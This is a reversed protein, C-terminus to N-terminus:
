EDFSEWAHNVVMWDDLCDDFCFRRAVEEVGYRKEMLRTWHPYYDKRIEEESTVVVQNGLIKPRGPEDLDYGDGWIPENYCFFRMTDGELRDV